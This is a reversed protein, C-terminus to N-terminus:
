TRYSYSGCVFEVRPKRKRSAMEGEKGEKGEKGPELAGLAVAAIQWVPSLTGPRKVAQMNFDGSNWSEWCTTCYLRRDWDQGQCYKGMPFRVLCNPTGCANCYEKGLASRLQAQSNLAAVEARREEVSEVAKGEKAPSEPEPDAESHEDKGPVAETGGTEAHAGRSERGEGAPASEGAQAESHRPAEECARQSDQEEREAAAVAGTSAAPGSAGQSEQAPRSETGGVEEAGVAGPSEGAGASAVAEEAEFAETFAEATAIVEVPDVLAAALVEDIDEGESWQLVDAPLDVDELEFGGELEEFESDLENSAETRCECFAEMCSVWGGQSAELQLSRPSQGPAMSASATAYSQALEEWPGPAPPGRPSQCGSDTPSAEPLPLAESTLHLPRAQGSGTSCGSDELSEGAAGDLTLTWGEFAHAERSEEHVWIGGEEAMFDGELAGAAISLLTGALADAYPRATAALHGVSAAGALAALASAPGPELIAAPPGGPRGTQTRSAQRNTAWHERRLRAHERQLSFHTRSLCSSFRRVEMLQLWQEAM